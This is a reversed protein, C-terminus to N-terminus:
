NSESHEFPDFIFHELGTFTVTKEEEMGYNTVVFENAEADYHEEATMAAGVTMDFGLEDEYYKRSVTGKTIEGGANKYVYVKCAGDGFENNTILEPVGDGDLDVSYAGFSHEDGFTEAVCREEGDMEVWFHWVITWPAVQEMTVHYDEFGLVTDFPKISNIDSSSDDHSIDMVMDLFDYIEDPERLRFSMDYRVGEYSFIAECTYKYKEDWETFEEIFLYVDVGNYEAVQTPEGPLAIDEPTNFACSMTVPDGDLNATFALTDWGSTDSIDTDERHLLRIASIDAGADALNEALLTGGYLETLEEMSGITDERLADSPIDEQHRPLFVACLIAAAGLSAAIATWGVWKKSKKQDENAARIAWGDIDGIAELLMEANM